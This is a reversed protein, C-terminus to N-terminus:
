DSSTLPLKEAVAPDAVKVPVEVSFPVALRNLTVMLPTDKTKDALETKPIALVKVMVVPESFTLELVGLVTIKLPM